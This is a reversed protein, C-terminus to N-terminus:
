LVVDLWDAALLLLLLLRWAPSSYIQLPRSDINWLHYFTVARIFSHVVPPSSSPPHLILHLLFLFISL